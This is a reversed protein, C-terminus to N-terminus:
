QKEWHTFISAQTFIIANQTPDTVDIPSGTRDYNGYSRWNNPSEFVISKLNNCNKFAGSGIITVSKPISVSVLSYCRNFADAGIFTVTKPIDISKLSKCGSFVGMEIKSLSSPLKIDTLKECASFAAGEITQVSDPITVSTISCNYFAQVGIYTVGEPIIIESLPTCNVFAFNGIETIGDPITLSTVLQDNLFLREAHYLPNADAGGEFKIKCWATLDSIHVSKLKNCEFFANVGIKQITSSITIKELGTCGFFARGGIETIGNPVVVSKITTIKEFAGTDIATVPYKGIYSPIYINTDTCTGIGTIVCTVSEDTVIHDYELNSSGIAPVYTDVFSHSCDKCTHTTYGDRTKTPSTISDEYDHSKLDDYKTETYNCGNVTCNRVSEGQETCSSEAIQKWDDFVHVHDVKECSTMNFLLFFLLFTTLFIIKKM